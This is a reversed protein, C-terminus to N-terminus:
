SFQSRSELSLRGGGFAMVELLGGLIALNKLLQIRQEPASHFILTAVILFAGLVGAARRVQFGLALAMGGLSELLASGACLGPAWPMGRTQMYDVTGSFNTIKGFASAMFIAAILLRGALAM